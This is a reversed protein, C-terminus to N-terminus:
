VLIWMYTYLFRQQDLKSVRLGVHRDKTAAVKVAALELTDAVRERLAKVGRAVEQRLRRLRNGQCEPLIEWPNGQHRMWSENPYPPESQHLWEASCELLTIIHHYIGSYSESMNLCNKPWPKAHNQKPWTWLKKPSTLDPLQGGVPRRRNVLMKLQQRHRPWTLWSLFVLGMGRVLPENIPIGM